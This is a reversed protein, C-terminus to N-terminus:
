EVEVLNVEFVLVSNAPIPGNAQNGFGISPPIVLKRVGGVRMGAVGEDWGAIVAGVGLPFRIPDDPPLAEDFLTGNPLWGRYFASVTSGATAIAGDGEEVDQYYLGSSTRTMADLDIGLEPAFTVNRPDVRLPDSECAAAAMAAASVLAILTLARKM